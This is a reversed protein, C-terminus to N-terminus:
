NFQIVLHFYNLTLLNLTIALFM